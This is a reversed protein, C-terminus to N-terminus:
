RVSPIPDGSWLRGRAMESWMRFDCLFSWVPYTFTAPRNREVRFHGVWAAAYASVIGLTMYLPSAIVLPLVVGLMPVFAAREREVRLAGWAGAAFAVGLAPAFWAPNSILSTLVMAFFGTTGCFHLARSVPSRHEGLYYPWFSQISQIRDM